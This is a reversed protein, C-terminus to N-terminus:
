SNFHKDFTAQIEDTTAGQNKQNHGKNAGDQKTNLLLTNFKERLKTTSLINKKWFDNTQLFQFVLRINELTQKDSEIMLRISDIWKGNAKQITTLSAGADILNKKFLEYFSITIDFYESDEFDSKKLDSLLTKKYDNNVKNENNNTPLERKSTTEKTNVQQKSDTEKTNVPNQYSDYNCVTLRTTVKMNEIIIMNDSQLLEFFTKVTKKTTNFENAWSGLSRISQGKECLILNNGINIKKPKHNVSLLINVWWQFKVPNDWIWNDRISRYLSIWGDM